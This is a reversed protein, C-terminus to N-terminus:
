EARRRSYCGCRCVGWRRRAAGRSVVVAITEERDLSLTVGDLARVTTTRFGRGRSKFHMAVDRLELMPVAGSAANNSRTTTFTM